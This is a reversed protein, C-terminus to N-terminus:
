LKAGIGMGFTVLASAGGILIAAVLASIAMRHGDHTRAINGSRSSVVWIVAAGLVGLVAFIEGLFLLTGVLDQLFNVGPLTQGSSGLPNNSIPINLQTALFTVM